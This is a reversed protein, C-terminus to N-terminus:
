DQLQFGLQILSVLLNEQLHSSNKVQCAAFERRLPYQNRLRRFLIDPDERKLIQRLDRDDIFIDYAHSLIQELSAPHDLVILPSVERILASERSWSPACQLHQCLAQYIMETAKVKGDFSYGAVHPTAIDTVKILEKSIFPENEWVDLILGGFKARNKVLERENLVGGRSCNILITAPGLKSIEKLGLLSLTPHDGQAVLPVHFSLVTAQELLEELPRYLPSGTEQQLPPDNLLCRIGLAEAKRKLASGTNGAGIIGLIQDSLSLKKQHVLRVLANIVFEGVAEANCGPASTFAIDHEKLYEQDVHDTGITATGLFSIRSNRLLAPTIKTTTRIVLVDAKQLRQNTIEAAPLLEVEGLSSFAEQAFPIHKEVIIKM